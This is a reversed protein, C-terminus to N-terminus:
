DAARREVEERMITCCARAYELLGGGFFVADLFVVGFFSPLVFGSKVALGAGPM